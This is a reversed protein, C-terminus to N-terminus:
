DNQNHKASLMRLLTKDKDILHHKVAALAHLSIIVAFTYGIYVHVQKGLDRLTENFPVATGDVYNNQILTIGFFDVGYGGFGSLTLGSLPMVILCFILVQHMAHVLKEQPQGVVSSVWRNKNRYYLRIIIVALAIVGFSKHWPYVAYGEANTMYIGSAVLSIVLAANLWHILRTTNHQDNAM